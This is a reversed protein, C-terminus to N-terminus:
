HDYIEQKLNPPIDFQETSINAPDINNGFQELIYEIFLPKFKPDKTLIAKIIGPKPWCTNIQKKTYIKTYNGELFANYNIEPKVVIVHIKSNLMFESELENNQQLKKILNSVLHSNKQVNIYLYVGGNYSTGIAGIMSIIPVFEAASELLALSPLLYFRSRNEYRKDSVHEYLSDEYDVPIM